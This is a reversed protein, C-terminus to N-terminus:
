KKDVIKKNDKIMKTTIDFIYSNKYMPQLKELRKRLLYIKKFNLNISDEITELITPKNPMKPFKNLLQFKKERIDILHNNFHIILAYITRLVIKFEEMNKNNEMGGVACLNRYTNKYKDWYKSIIKSIYQIRSVIHVPKNLNDTKMFQNILKYNNMVSIAQADKVKRDKLIEMIKVNYMSDIVHNVSYELSYFPFISEMNKNPTKNKIKLNNKSNKSSDKKIDFYNSISSIKKNPTSSKFYLKNNNKKSSDTKKNLNENIVNTKIDCSNSISNTEKNPTKNEVDLVDYKNETFSYAIKRITQNKPNRGISRAKDSQIYIEEQVNECFPFIDKYISNLKELYEKVKELSKYNTNFEHLLKKRKDESLNFRKAAKISLILYLNYDVMSIYLCRVEPIINISPNSNKTLNIFKEYFENFKEICHECKILSDKLSKHSPFLCPKYNIAMNKAEEDTTKPDKLKRSEQEYYSEDFLNLLPKIPYLIEAKKASKNRNIESAQKNIKVLEKNFDKMPNLILNDESNSKKIKINKIKAYPVDFIINKHYPINKITRNNKKNIKLSNIKKNINNTIKPTNLKNNPGIKMSSVNNENKKIFKNIIKYDNLNENYEKIQEEM